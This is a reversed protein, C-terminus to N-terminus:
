VEELICKSRYRLPAHCRCRVCYHHRHHLLAHLSYDVMRIQPLCEPHGSNNFGPFSHAMCAIMSDTNTGVYESWTRRVISISITALAFPDGIINAMSFKSRRQSNM